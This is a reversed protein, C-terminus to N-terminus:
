DRHKEALISSLLSIRPSIKTDGPQSSPHFFKLSQTRPSIKISIKTNGSQSSSCFFKLSQNKLSIEHKGVSIFSTFSQLNLQRALGLKDTPIPPLSTLFCLIQAIEFSLKVSIPFLSSFKIYIIYLNPNSWDIRGRVQM